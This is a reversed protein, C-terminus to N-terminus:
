ATSRISTAAREAVDLLATAMEPSRILGNALLRGNPGVVIAAPTASIGFAAFYGADAVVAVRFDSALDEPLPVAEVGLTIVRLAVRSSRAPFDAFIRPLIRECSKCDAAAFIL